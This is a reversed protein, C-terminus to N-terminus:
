YNRNIPVAFCIKGIFDFVNLVSIKAMKTKM